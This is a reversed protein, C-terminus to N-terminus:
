ATYMANVPGYCNGGAQMPVTYALAPMATPDGYIPDVVQFDATPTVTTIMYDLFTDGGTVEHTLLYYSHGGTLQVPTGLPAFVFADDPQNVLSVIAIAGPVDTGDAADVIKVEHPQVNLPSRWRGLSAILVDTTPQITMGAWGTFDNRGAPPNMPDVAFDVMPQPTPPTPPPDPIHELGFVRDCGVFGALALTGAVLAPTLALFSDMM